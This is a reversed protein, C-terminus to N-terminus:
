AAADVSVLPTQFVHRSSDLAPARPALNQM